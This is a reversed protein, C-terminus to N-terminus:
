GEFEIEKTLPWVANGTRRVLDDNSRVRASEITAEVQNVEQLGARANSLHKEAGAEKAKAAEIADTAETVKSAM